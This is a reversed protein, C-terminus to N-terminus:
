IPAKSANHQAVKDAPLIITVAFTIIWEHKSQFYQMQKYRFIYEINDVYNFDM